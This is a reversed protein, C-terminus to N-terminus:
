VSLASQMSRMPDPTVGEFVHKNRAQWITNLIILVLGISSSLFSSQALSCELLYALWNRINTVQALTGLIGPCAGFWVARSFDCHLFLHERDETDHTCLGCGGHIPM